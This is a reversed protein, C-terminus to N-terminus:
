SLTRAVNFASQGVTLTLEDRGPGLLAVSVSNVYRKAKEHIKLGGTCEDHVPNFPTPEIDLDLQLDVDAASRRAVPEDPAPIRSHRIRHRYANTALFERPPINHTGVIHDGKKAKKKAKAKKKLNPTAEVM